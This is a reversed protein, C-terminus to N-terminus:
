NNNDPDDNLLQFSRTSSHFLFKRVQEREFIEKLNNLQIGDLFQGVDMDLIPHGIVVVVTVNM